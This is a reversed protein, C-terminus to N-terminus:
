YRPIERKNASNLLIGDVAGKRRLEWSQGTVTFQAMTRSEKNASFGSAIHRRGAFLRWRQVLFVFGVRCGKVIDVITCKGIHLNM